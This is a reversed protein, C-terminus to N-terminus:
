HDTRRICVCVDIGPRDKLLHYVSNWVPCDDGQTFIQCRKLCINGEVNGCALGQRKVQVSVCQIPVPLLPVDMPTRDNVDFGPSHQCEPVADARTYNGTAIMIIAATDQVMARQDQLAAADRTVGGQMRTAANGVAARHQDRAATHGPIGRQLFAAAEEVMRLRPQRHVAVDYKAVASRLILVNGVVSRHRDDANITSLSSDLVHRDYLSKHGLLRDNGGDRQQDGQQQRHPQVIIQAPIALAAHDDDNREHETQDKLVIKVVSQGVFPGVVRQSHRHRDIAVGHPRHQQRHEEINQLRFSVIPCHPRQHRYIGRDVQRGEEGIDCKLERHVTMKLRPRQAMCASNDARHQKATQETQRDPPKVRAPALFGPDGHQHGREDGPSHDHIYRDNVFVLGDGEQGDGDGDATDKVVDPQVQLEHTLM